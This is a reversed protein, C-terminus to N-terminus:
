RLPLIFFLWIGQNVALQDRYGCFAFGHRQLFSIAPHNRTEAEAMLALVGQERAWAAVSTLLASGIGKRRQATDVVLHRIQAVPESPILPMNLFGLIQNQNEAVIFCEDHQWCALLGSEQRPVRVQATRPLRVTRFTMAIENPRPREDVQWVYDTSYSRDMEVCTNLDVLEARRVRM